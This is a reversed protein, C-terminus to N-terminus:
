PWRRSRAGSIRIVDTGAGKIDAGMSNLFNAVDVIHPEKAVNEIITKGKILAAALMINITAGVSVIDLFIHAGALNDSYANIRGSSIDINAGLARFGKLHQDIPRAGIECGGPLAVEARKYKGLLAGILYYSARIKRIFEDDVVYSKLASANIRVKNRELRDVIVGTEAIAELMVNIDKVDPLNDIIVDEDTMIAAALIGLAANKAGSVSVEGALAVGGKIIYQNM